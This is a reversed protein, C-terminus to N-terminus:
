GVRVALVDCPAGHLVANATSGLLLAVGHRSHSGLVILDIEEQEARRVISTKTSGVELWCRDPPVGFRDGLKILEKRAQAQMQSDFGAPLAPLVDYAPEVIIPEVVHILDLRAQYLQALETARECVKETERTFDVGAMLRRYPM